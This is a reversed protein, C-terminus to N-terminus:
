PEHLGANGRVMGPQSLLAEADHEGDADVAPWARFRSHDRAPGRRAAHIDHHRGAGRVRISSELAQSRPPIVAASTLTHVADCINRFM